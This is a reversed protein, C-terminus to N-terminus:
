AERRAAQPPHWPPRGGTAVSRPLVAAPVLALATIALAVAFSAGIVVVVAPALIERTLGDAAPAQGTLARREDIKSLTV